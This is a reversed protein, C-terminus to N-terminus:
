CSRAARSASTSQGARFVSVRSMKMVRAVTAVQLRSSSEPPRADQLLGDVKQYDAANFKGPSLMVVAVRLANIHGADFGSRAPQGLASIDASIAPWYKDWEAVTPVQESVARLAARIRARTSADFRSVRADLTESPVRYFDPRWQRGAGDDWVPMLEIVVAPQKPKGSYNFHFTPRAQSRPADTGCFVNRIARWSQAASVGAPIPPADAISSRLAFALRAGFAVATASAPQRGDLAACFDRLHVGGNAICSFACAIVDLDVGRGGDAAAFLVGFVVRWDGGAREISQVAKAYAPAHRQRRGLVQRAQDPDLGAADPGFRPGHWELRGDALARQVTRRSVKYLVAAASVSIKKREM